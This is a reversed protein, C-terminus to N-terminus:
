KRVAPTAALLRVSVHHFASWARNVYKSRSLCSRYWVRGAVGENLDESQHSKRPSGASSSMTDCMIFLKVRLGIDVAGNRVYMDCM